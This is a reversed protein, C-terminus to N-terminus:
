KVKKLYKKHLKLAGNCAKKADLNGTTDNLIKVVDDLGRAEALLKPSKEKLVSAVLFVSLPLPAVSNNKGANKMYAREYKGYESKTKTKGKSGESKENSSSEPDEYLLFLTPDYELAWMMEWLFLSDGFSFERRFLVMLMRFAFLYDGGGLTELHKHLKPDIVQTVTALNSLQMEVGVSRETCKFNGRLRRMLHQFCWFADGEDELLIIMPSCLDSMGQCYGIDKDFWAYVALIDWLKALNEQKEYFILTRDTRFVDLGIQHLTLKWEVIRQDTEKVVEPDNLSGNETPRQAKNAEQLVLPDQIPYGDETIVPATIFRGSGIMSFNQRCEEKLVAYQERRRQRIQDREGFTSKPDYCGLLFEWVEGRISPHIGGRYIRRLIKGINLYGEPTFSAEWRRSSLTKGAKVRFKTKPVDTCQPRVEYFSDTASDGLDKWM